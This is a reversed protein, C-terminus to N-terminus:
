AILDAYAARHRQLYAAAYSCRPAVKLGEARAYALAAEVLQAAIGRGGIEPPVLTHTIALVDGERQYELYGARGDVRVVFRRGALDHELDHQPTAAPAPANDDM